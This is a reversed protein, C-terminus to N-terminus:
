GNLLKLERLDKLFNEVDAKVAERSPVEFEEEIKTIIDEISHNGDCFRWILMAVANLIKVEENESNFLFGEDGEERFVINSKVKANGNM